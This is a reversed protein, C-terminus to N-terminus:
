LSLLGAYTATTPSGKAAKVYLQEARVYDDVDAALDGALLLLEPAETDVELGSKLAATAQDSNGTKRLARGYGAWVDPDGSGTALDKEYAGLATEWAKASDGETADLAEAYALAM